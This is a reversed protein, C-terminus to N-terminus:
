PVIVISAAIGITIPALIPVVEVAKSILKFSEEVALSTAKDAETNLITPTSMMSGKKLKNSFVAREKLLSGEKCTAIANVILLVTVDQKKKSNIFGVILIRFLCGQYL